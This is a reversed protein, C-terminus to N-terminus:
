IIYCVGVAAFHGIIFQSFFDLTRQYATFINMEPRKGFVDCNNLYLIPFPSNVQNYIHTFINEM